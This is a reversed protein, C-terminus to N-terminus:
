AASRKGITKHLFHDRQPPVEPVPPAAEVTPDSPASPPEPAASSVQQEPVAVPAERALKQHDDLHWRTHEHRKRLAQASDKLSM